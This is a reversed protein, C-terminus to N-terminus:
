KQSRAVRARKRTVKKAEAECRAVYADVLRRIMPQYQTNHKEAHEKFFEVSHRSLSLTVKVSDDRFVLQEPPPLFNPIVRVRGLPENTYKVKASM